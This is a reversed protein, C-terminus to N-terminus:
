EQWEALLGELQEHRKLAREFTVYKEAANAAKAEAFREYLTAINRAPFPLEAQWDEWDWEVKEVNGTAFDHVEITKPTSDDGVSIFTSQPSVFRIEGKEGNISWHLVPEGPFAQGRRFRFHLTANKQTTASEAWKGSVFVLDPVNSRVTKIVAQSAADVLENEPRQLHFDGKASALEGLVGQVMDFVTMHTLM